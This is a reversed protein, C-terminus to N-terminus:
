KLKFCLMTMDDFQSNDNVFNAVSTEVKSIIGKSDYRDSSGLSGLGGLLRTDGYLEHGANEAEVIGDTYLLMIDGDKLQVRNESYPMDEMGGVVFCRKGKVFEARGDSVLVPPNHGACVYTLERTNLDLVGVWVTVFMEAENKSCLVANAAEVARGLSSIDRICNQLVIKASAMFLAAPVGKGSVDGILFCLRDNDVYFVDYFDGGVEKAAKMYASVDINDRGPYLENLTPLLSHQIVNAVELESKLRARDSQLKRQNITYVIVSIMMTIGLGNVILFPIYITKVTEFALSFPKVMILVICLHLSEMVVGTIFSMLPHALKEGHKDYMIGCIFGISVTAVACAWAFDGGMTIRHVAALLGAFVGGIPGGMFGAIMPGIDRVSIVAGNMPIGSINGYVGFLGGLLGALLSYRIDKEEKNFISFKDSGGIFASVVLIVALTGIMKTFLDEM